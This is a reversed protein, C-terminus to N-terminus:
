ASEPLFTQIASSDLGNWEVSLGQKKLSEVILKGVEVGPLSNPGVEGYYLFVKGSQKFGDNSQHHYFVRGRILSKKKEPLNDVYDEIGASGCTQCCMYNKRSVIGQRRLEKFALTILESAREYNSHDARYYYRRRSM